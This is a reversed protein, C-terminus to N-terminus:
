RPEPAFPNTKTGAYLSYRSVRGALRADVPIVFDVTAGGPVGALGTQATGLYRNEGDYLYAEVLVRAAPEGRNELRGEIGDGHSGRVLEHSEVTFPAQRMPLLMVWVLGAVVALGVAV